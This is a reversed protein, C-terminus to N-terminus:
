WILGQRRVGFSVTDFTANNCGEFGFLWISWLHTFDSYITFWEDHEVISNQSM